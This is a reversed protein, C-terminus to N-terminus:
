SCSSSTTNGSAIWERLSSQFAIVPGRVLSNFLSSYVSFCFVLLLCVIEWIDRPHVQYHSHPFTPEAYAYILKAGHKIIGGSEQVTGPLFGPVDVLTVIPINFADCFRVFRAGKVSSDSDLCGSAVQPQNAVVGVSRGGMRAFGVVINKAYEEHIEFFDEEDVIKEIVDKINYRLPHTRLLVRVAPLADTAYILILCVCM